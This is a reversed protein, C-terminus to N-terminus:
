SLSQTPLLVLGAARQPVVVSSGSPHCHASCLRHPWVCHCLAVLGVHACLHTCGWTPLLGRSAQEQECVSSSGKVSLKGHLSPLLFGPSVSEDSDASPLPGARTVSFAAPWPPGAGLVSVWSSNCSVSTLGHMRSFVTMRGLWQIMESLDGGGPRLKANWLM